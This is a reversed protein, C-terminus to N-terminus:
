ADPTREEDSKKLSEPIYTGYEWLRYYKEADKRVADPDSADVVHVLMVQEEWDIGVLFSGPSLTIFYGVPGVGAPSHNGIPLKVIGPKRLPRLGLTISIIQYTGKMIDVFLYWFLVPSYIVIHTALGTPPLPKPVIQNRFVYMLGVVVVTAVLMTEWSFDTVILGFVAVSSVLIGLLLIM